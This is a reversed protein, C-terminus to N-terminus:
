GMCCCFISEFNWRQEGNERRRKTRNEVWKNTVAKLRTSRWAKREDYDNITQNERALMEKEKRTSLREARVPTRGMKRQFDLSVEEMSGQDKGFAFSNGEFYTTFSGRTRSMATSM